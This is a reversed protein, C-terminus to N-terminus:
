IQFDPFFISFERGNELHSKIFGEAESNKVKFTISELGSVLEIEM